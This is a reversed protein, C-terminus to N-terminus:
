DTTYGLAILAAEIEGRHPTPPDFEAAAEESFGEALYDDKLDYAIGIHM